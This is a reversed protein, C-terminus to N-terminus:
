FYYYISFIRVITRMSYFHSNSCIHWHIYQINEPLYFYINRSERVKKLFVDIPIVEELEMKSNGETYFKQPNQIAMDANLVIPESLLDGRSAMPPILLPLRKDDSVTLTLERGITQWHFRSSIPIM